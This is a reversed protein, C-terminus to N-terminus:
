FVEKPKLYPVKRPSDYARKFLANDSRIIFFCIFTSIDYINELKILKQLSILQVMVNELYLLIDCNQGFGSSQNGAFDFDIYM